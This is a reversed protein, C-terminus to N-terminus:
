NNYPQKKDLKLKLKEAYKLSMSYAYSWNNQIRDRLWNMVEEETKPQPLYNPPLVVSQIQVGLVKNSFLVIQEELNYDINISSDEKKAFVVNTVHETLSIIPKQNESM